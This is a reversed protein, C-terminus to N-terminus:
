VPINPQYALWQGGRDGEFAEIVGSAFNHAQLGIFITKDNISVDRDAARKRHGEDDASLEWKGKKGDKRKLLGSMDHIGSFEHSNPGSSVGAPIGVGAMMRTNNSGGSMAIFYYTVPTGNHELANTIFMREGYDNGSDEQMIAYMKGDSELVEFGDIDEFTLKSCSTNDCNTLASQGDNYQGKGGLEIQSTIDVEGQYVYYSASIDGPLETGSLGSLLEEINSLYYHGFYGCTSTQVFGSIGVRPDPSNHETKCGETDAGNGNWFHNNSGLHLPPQEQFDWSGDHEFNKVDGDWQWNIPTFVGDIQNGNVGMSPDKHFADRWMGGTPGSESMDIAFGYM